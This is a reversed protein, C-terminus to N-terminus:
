FLWVGVTAAVCVVPVHILLYAPLGMTFAMVSLLALLALNMRHISKREKTGDNRTSFRNAILFTYLPGIGLLIAPHRLVQYKMQTLRPAALYEKVTMTYVDGSGRHDLDGSTAHHIAHEHRWKHYPTFVLLGTLMGLVDNAHRSAFFSGHCCDHFIIFIRVLFGGTVIALGLTLWYSYTLSLYMVYLLVVYPIFTNVIQWSSQALSPRQYHKVADRWDRPVPQKQVGNRIAHM